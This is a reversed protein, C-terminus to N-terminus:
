AFVPALDAVVAVFFSFLFISKNSFTGGIRRRSLIKPCYRSSTVSLIEMKEEYNEQKTLNSVVSLSLKSDSENSVEELTEM